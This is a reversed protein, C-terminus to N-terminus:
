TRSRAGLRSITSLDSSSTPTGRDKLFRTAEADKVMEALPGQHPNDPGLEAALEDLYTMNMQSAVSLPTRGYNSRTERLVDFGAGELWDMFGTDPVDLYQELTRPAGHDEVMLYYIDRPPSGSAADPDRRPPTSGDVDVRQGGVFVAPETLLHDGVGVLALAVLIVSAVNLVSTVGRLDSRTFSVVAILAVGILVWAALLPPGSIGLPQIASAWQGFMLIVVAVISVVIAARRASVRAFRLAFFLALAAGVSIGLPM